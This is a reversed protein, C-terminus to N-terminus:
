SYPFLFHSIIQFTKIFSQLDLHPFFYLTLLCLHFTRSGDSSRSKGMEFDALGFHEDDGAELSTRKRGERDQRVDERTTNISVVM